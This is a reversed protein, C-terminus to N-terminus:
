EQLQHKWKLQQLQTSLSIVLRVVPPQATDVPLAQGEEKKKRRERGGATGGM